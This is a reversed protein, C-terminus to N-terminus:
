KSWEQKITQGNAEIVMYGNEGGEEFYYDINMNGEASTITYIVHCLGAYEGSTELGEINWNANANGNETTTSMKWQAGKECWENITPGSSEIEVDVDGNSEAEIQREIIEETAKQCSVLFLLIVALSLVLLIKKM